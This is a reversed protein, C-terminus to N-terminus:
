KPWPPWVEVGNRVIRGSSCDEESPRNKELAQLTSIAPTDWRVSPSFMWTTPTPKQPPSSLDPPSYKPQWPPQEAGRVWRLDKAEDSQLIHWIARKHRQRAREACIYAAKGTWYWTHGELRRSLITVDREQLTRLIPDLARLESRAELMAVPDSAIDFIPDVEM